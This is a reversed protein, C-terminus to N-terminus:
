LCSLHHQLPCMPSKGSYDFEGAQGISLGGSGIVLVNHVDVLNRAGLIAGSDLYAKANPAEQTANSARFSARKSFDRLQRYVPASDHAARLTALPSPASTTLARCASPFAPRNCQRLLAPTRRVLRGCVAMATHSNCSCTLLLVTSVAQPARCPRAPPPVTTDLARPSLAAAKPWRSVAAALLQRPPLAISRNLINRPSFIQHLERRSLGVWVARYRCRRDCSRNRPGIVTRQAIVSEV